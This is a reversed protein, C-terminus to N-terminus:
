PMPPAPPDVPQDSPPYPTGPQVYPQEPATGGRPYPSPSATGPMQQNMGFGTGTIDAYVLCAATIGLPLTFLIGICCGCFGCAIVLGQVFVFGVAPFWKDKTMAFSSGIAQLPNRDTDSLECYYFLLFGAVAFAAILALCGFLLGLGPLLFAGAVIPTMVAYTLLSYVLGGIAGKGAKSFGGFLDGLEASGRRITALGFSYLCIMTIGYVFMNIFSQAATYPAQIRLQDMIGAMDTAPTAPRPTIITFVVSLVIQPLMTLLGAVFFVGASNKAIEWARIFADFSIENTGGFGGNGQQYPVQSM